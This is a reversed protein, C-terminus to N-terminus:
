ERGSFSPKVYGGRLSNSEKAALPRESPSVLRGLRLILPRGTDRQPQKSAGGFSCIKFYNECSQQGILSTTLVLTM